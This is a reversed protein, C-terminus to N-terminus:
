ALAADVLIGAAARAQVAVAARLREQRAVQLAGDYVLQLQCALAGPDRVGAETAMEHFLARTYARYDGAVQELDDGVPVEASAAAFACGRFGPTAFLEAQADFVALLRERPDDGARELARDIREKQRDHRRELYAKVLGDKNGFCKYLSAKAVGAEDLIRDIGVTHVGEAYFLRDATDLLRERPSREPTKTTM